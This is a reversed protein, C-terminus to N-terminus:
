LANGELCRQAYDRKRIEKPTIYCKQSYSYVPNSKPIDKNFYFWEELRNNYLFNQTSSNTWVWGFPEATDTVNITQNGENTFTNPDASSQETIAKLFDISLGTSAALEDWKFVATYNVGDFHMYPHVPTEDELPM